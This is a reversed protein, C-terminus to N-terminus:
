RRKWYLHVCSVVFEKSPDDNCTFKAMLAVNFREYQKGGSGQGFAPRSKTLEDLYVEETGHLTLTAPNYAILCGDERTPRQLYLSTFHLSDLTPKIFDQFHDVEQLCILDAEVNTALTEFLASLAKSRHEFDLHRSAQEATPGTKPLLGFTYVDALINWTALTLQRMSVLLKSPQGTPSSSPQSSPQSTSLSPFPDHQPNHIAGWPHFKEQNVFAAVCMYQAHATCIKSIRDM